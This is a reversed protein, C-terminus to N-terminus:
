GKEEFVDFTKVEQNEYNREFVRKESSGGCTISKFDWVDADYDLLKQGDKNCFLEANKEMITPNLQFVILALLITIGVLVGILFSLFEDM